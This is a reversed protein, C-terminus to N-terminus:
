HLEYSTLQSRWYGTSTEGPKTWEHHSENKTVGVGPAYWYLERGHYDWGGGTGLEDSFLVLCHHFTGAPVTLTADTSVVYNTATTNILVEDPNQASDNDPTTWSAGAALPERLFVLPQPLMGFESGTILLEGSTHRLYIEMGGPHHTPSAEELLVIRDGISLVTHTMSGSGSGWWFDEYTERNWRNGVTFPFVEPITYSTPTIREWTQEYSHGGTTSTFTMHNNDAFSLAIDSPGGADDTPWTKEVTASLTSDSVAGTGVQVIASGDSWQISSTYAGSAQVTLQGGPAPYVSVGDEKMGTLRWAGVMSPQGGIPWTDVGVVCRLLRIADGVDTGGNQNCDAHAVDDDLGVVIRLIRIADGVGPEGDGDMDGLLQGNAPAVGGPQVTDSVAVSGAPGSVSGAQEGGGGCGVLWIMTAALLLVIAVSASSRRM